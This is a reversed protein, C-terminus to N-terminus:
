LERVRRNNAEQEALARAKAVALRQEAESVAIAQAAKERKREAVKAPHPPEALESIFDVLFTITNPIATTYLWEFIALVAKYLLYYIFFKFLIGGM